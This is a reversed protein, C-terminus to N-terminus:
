LSKPTVVRSTTRLEVNTEDTAPTGALAGSQSDRGSESRKEESRVKQETSQSCVGNGDDPTVRADGNDREEGLRLRGEGRGHKLILGLEGREDFPDLKTSITLRVRLRRDTECRQGERRIGRRLPQRPWPLLRIRWARSPKRDTARGGSRGRCCERVRQDDKARKM